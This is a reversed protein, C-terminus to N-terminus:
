DALTYAKSRYKIFVYSNLFFILKGIRIQPEPDGRSSWTLKVWIQFVFNSSIYIFKYLMYM